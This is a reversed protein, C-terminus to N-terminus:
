RKLINKDKQCQLYLFNTVSISTMPCFELCHRFHHDGAREEQVRSQTDVPVKIHFTYVGVKMCSQKSKSIVNKSTVAQVREYRGTVSPKIQKWLITPHPTAIFLTFSKVFENWNRMDNVALPRPILYLNDGRNSVEHRRTKQKIM